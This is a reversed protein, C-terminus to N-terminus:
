KIHNNVFTAIFSAKDNTIFDGARSFIGSPKSGTIYVGVVPFQHKREHSETTYRVMEAPATNVREQLVYNEMDLDIGEYSM